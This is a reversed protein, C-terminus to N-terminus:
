ANYASSTLEFEAKALDKFINLDVPVFVDSFVIHRHESNSRSHYIYLFYENKIKAFEAVYSVTEVAENNEEDEYTTLDLRLFENAMGICGNYGEGYKQSADMYDKKDTYTSLGNMWAEDFNYIELLSMKKPETVILYSENEQPINCSRFNHELVCNGNDFEEAAKFHEKQEETLKGFMEKLENAFFTDSKSVLKLIESYKTEM